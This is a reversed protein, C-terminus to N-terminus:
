FKGKGGLANNSSKGRANGNADDLRHAQYAAAAAGQRRNASGSRNQGGKIMYQNAMAVDEDDANDGGRSAGRKQNPRVNPGSRGNMMPPKNRVGNSAQAGGVMM